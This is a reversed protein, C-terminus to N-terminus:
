CQHHQSSGSRYYHLHKSEPFIKFLSGFPNALPKTILYSLFRSDPIPELFKLELLLIAPITMLPSRSAHLLLLDTPFIVLLLLTTQSRNVKLHRNSIWTSTDLPCNSIPIQRKLFPDQIPIYVPSGDPKQTTNFAQHLSYLSLFSWDSSVTTQPGSHLSASSREGFCCKHSSSLFCLSSATSWFVFCKQPINNLHKHQWIPECTVKVWRTGKSMTQFWHLRHRPTFFLDQTGLEGTLSVVAETTVSGGRQSWSIWLQTNQPKFEHRLHIEEWRVRGGTSINLLWEQKGISFVKIWKDGTM